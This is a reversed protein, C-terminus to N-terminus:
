AERGENWDPVIICGEIVLVPDQQMGMTDEHSSDQLERQRKRLSEVLNPHLRLTSCKKERIFEALTEYSRAMKTPLKQVYLPADFGSRDKATM